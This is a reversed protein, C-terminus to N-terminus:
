DECPGEYDNEHQKLHSLAAKLPLWLTVYTEGNGNEDGQGGKTNGTRHCIPYKPMDYADGLCVEYGDTIETDQLIGDRNLDLGSYIAFECDGDLEDIRVLSNYGDDGDAGPVGQSGDAGDAGDEGDEGDEGNFIEFSNTIEDTDLIGDGDLDLGMDIRIGNAIATENILLQPAEESIGDVGDPVFFEAIVEDEDLITNANYDLGIQVLNGGEVPITNFALSVGDQGDIGNIGDIGDKGNFVFVQQTIEEEDLIGDRDLDLGSQVIVGESTEVLNVLADRGDTGDEGDQGNTVNITTIIESEQLQGDYNLDYGIYLVAGDETEDTDYIVSLGDQGDEGDQGDSGNYVPIETTVEDESLIGDANTDLGVQIIYGGNPYEDSPEVTVVNVLSNLGDLPPPTTDIKEISCAGILLLLAAFLLKKM